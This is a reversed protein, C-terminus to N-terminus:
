PLPHRLVIVSSNFRAILNDMELQQYILGLGINNVDMNDFDADSMRYLEPLAVVFPGPASPVPYHLRAATLRPTKPIPGIPEQAEDSATEPLPELPEEADGGGLVQSHIYALSRCLQSHIYALSRSFRFIYLKVRSHANCIKRKNFYQSARYVTEPVFDLVLRSTSKTRRHSAPQVETAAAATGSATMRGCAVPWTQPDNNSVCLFFLGAVGSVVIGGFFIKKEARTFAPARRAAVGDDVFPPGDM